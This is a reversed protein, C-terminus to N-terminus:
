PNMEYIKRTRNNERLEKMYAWSIYNQPNGWKIRKANLENKIPYNQRVM